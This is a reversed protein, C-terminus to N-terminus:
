QRIIPHKDEVIEGNGVYGEVTFNNNLLEVWYGHANFYRYWGTGIMGLSAAIGWANRVM